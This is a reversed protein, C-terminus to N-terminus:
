ADGLLGAAVRSLQITTAERSTMKKAFFCALSILATLSRSFLVSLLLLVHVHFTIKHTSHVGSKRNLNPSLLGFM